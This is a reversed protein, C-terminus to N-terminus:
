GGITKIINVRSDDSLEAYSIVGRLWSKGKTIEFIDRRIKENVILVAQIDSDDINSENEFKSIIAGWCGEKDHFYNRLDLSSLSCLYEELEANILIAKVVGGSRYENLIHDKINIRVMSLLENFGEASDNGKIVAEAIQRIPKITIKEEVLSKIIGCFKLMPVSRQLEQVLATENGSLIELIRNVEKLGIFESSIDFLLCEMEGKIEQCIDSIDGVENDSGESSDVNKIVKNMFHVNNVLVEMHSEPRKGSFIVNLEPIPYGYDCVIKNRICRLDFILKNIVQNNKYTSSLRLMLPLCPIFDTFDTHGNESPAMFEREEYYKKIKERQWIFYGGILISIVCLVMIITTPMGPMLAFLFMSVSAVIWAHPQKIIQETIESGINEEEGNDASVKAVILGATLSILLAPIQAVLGDGISLIAFTNLSESIDMDKQMVGIATGGILNIALIIISAIADGKIFKMAGDMAGFLKSEKALDNRKCRAQSVSIIGARLDSDITMQKGPMADLTFRAGVEAIREAGKTIVMFNVVTIVLYMVLGVVLNGGVVFNGFSEVIEGADQHVLINRTVAISISVRLLTTLLIIAPFSSLSVPKDLFISIVILLSCICINISILVDLIILPIPAILVFVMAIAMMSIFIESRKAVFNNINILKSIDM